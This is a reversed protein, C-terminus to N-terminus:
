LVGLGVGVNDCFLMRHKIWSWRSEEEEQETVSFDEHKFPTLGQLERSLKIILGSM